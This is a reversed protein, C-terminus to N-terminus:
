DEVTLPNNISHLIEYSKERLQLTAAGFKMATRLAKSLKGWDNKSFCRLHFNLRSQWGVKLRLSLSM